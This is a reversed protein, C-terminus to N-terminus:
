LRPTAQGGHIKTRAAEKSALFELVASIPHGADFRARLSAVEAVHARQITEARPAALLRKFELVSDKASPLTLISRLREVAESHLSAAPIVRSVLGCRLAEAASLTRSGLLVETALSPGMLVPFTISSAMEPVLALRGFPTMFSAEDSCWVIDAHPLITVAVGIALGSVAVALLKSFSYVAQALEDFGVAPDTMGTDGSIDAGSCFVGPVSSTLLVAWIDADCDAARLIKGLDAMCGRTLANKKQPRNFRVRLLHPIPADCDLYPKSQAM